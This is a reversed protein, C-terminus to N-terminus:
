IKLDSKLDLLRKSIEEGFTKNLLAYGEGCFFAKKFLEGSIFEIIEEKRKEKKAKRRINGVIISYEDNEEVIKEIERGIERTVKPSGIKSGISFSLNKYSKSYPIIGVGERFNSANIYVKYEEECDNCIKECIVEDDVAIIVLHCKKIFEKYYEGEELIINEKELELIDESFDKSLIHVLCGKELLGKAKIYSARGGGIIKVKIKNSILNLSVLNFIDERNDGCM